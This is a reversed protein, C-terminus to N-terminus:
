AQKAGMLKERGVLLLFATLVVFPVLALLDSQPGAFFPNHATAWKTLAVDTPQLV